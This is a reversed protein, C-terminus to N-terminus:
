RHEGKSISLIKNYINILTSANSGKDYIAKAYNKANKSISKALKDDGFVKCVYYTLMYPEDEPYIFGDQEHRMLNKVGGVDSAVTPVGMMIAEGVSNPSNEISSASVFVHSRLYREGMKNENLGGLFEIHQDLGYNKILKILYKNYSDMRYFPINRIDKSTTYVKTDPYYRLIGPLAEILKHFGKIPYNSQSVFISHRQCNELTWEHEYFYNRLTENCHFYKVTPNIQMTCAKDWDTRGIVNSVNRLAEQELLGRKEYKTKQRKINDNRVIDRLTFDYIVHLPLGAYYHRAYISCLGQISIVTRQPNGFARVMALSHSYETGWIHVIDPKFIEIIKRFTNEYNKNYTYISQGIQNFAFYKVFDHEGFVLEEPLDSPFCIALNIDSRNKLGDYAGTLWGGSNNEKLDLKQSIDPLPKNCLWLINV